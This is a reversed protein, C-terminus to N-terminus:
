EAYRIRYFGKGSQAPLAHIYQGSTGAAEIPGSVDSLSDLDDGHQVVYWLGPVASWEITLGVGWEVSIATIVIPPRAPPIAYTLQADWVLDPDNVDAQHVEVAVLNGGQVLRNTHPMLDIIEYSGAAHENALTDFEVPGGPLSRRAVEHGNVYAVFGDDYNAQLEFRSLSGPEDNIVMEKRFFTTIPPNIAPAFNLVSDVVTAGIGLV